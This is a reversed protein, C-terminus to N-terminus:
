LVMSIHGAAPNLKSLYHLTGSIPDCRPPLLNWCSDPDRSVQDVSLSYETSLLEADNGPWLGSDGICLIRTADIDFQRSMAHLLDRKSASAPLVDISHTSMTLKISTLEQNQVLASLDKWMEDIAAIEDPRITVQAPYIRIKARKKLSGERAAVDLFQLLEANDTRKDSPLADDSLLGVQTANNYGILVRKHRKTPISTALAMRVSDGRGTAIGIPVGGDLIRVLQACIEKTPPTARDEVSVLTGDYDLVLGHLQARSLRRRFRSYGQKIEHLRDDNTVSGLKRRVAHNTSIPVTSSSAKTSLHYLRRGFQPIRPRGPDVELEDGIWAILQISFHIGLLQAVGFDEGLDVRTTLVRDPLLSLTKEALAGEGPGALSIVWTAQSYRNLWNHRGHAFNRYDSLSPAILAAESLKSELDIAAAKSSPGFLIVVYDSNRCNNRVSTELADLRQKSFGSEKLLSSLTSPLRRKGSLAQFARVVLLTTAFLTNTALFGDKGRPLRFSFTTSIGIKRAMIELPSDINACLINVGTTEDDGVTKLARRIDV